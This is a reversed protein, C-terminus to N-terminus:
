TVNCHLFVGTTFKTGQFDSNGLLICIYVTSNIQIVELQIRGSRIRYRRCCGRCGTCGSCGCCCRRCSGGRSRRCGCCSRCCFGSCLRGLSRCHGSFGRHHHSTLIPITIRCISCHKSGCSGVVLPYGTVVIISGGNGDHRLIRYYAACVCGVHAHFDRVGM